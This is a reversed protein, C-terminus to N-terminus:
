SSCCAGPQACACSTLPPWQGTGLSTWAYANTTPNTPAPKSVPGPDIQSPPLAFQEDIWKEFGKAQLEAILAPTPGFTAQEGCGALLASVLVLLAQTKVKM